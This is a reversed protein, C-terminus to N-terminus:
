KLYVLQDIANWEYIYNGNEKLSAPDAKGDGESGM